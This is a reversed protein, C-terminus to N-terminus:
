ARSRAVSLAWEVLLLIVVTDAVDVDFAGGYPTRVIAIGFPPVLLGTGRVLADGLTTAAISGFFEVFLRITLAVAIIFLVNMVGTLLLRLSRSSSM